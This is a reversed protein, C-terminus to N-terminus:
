MKMQLILKKKLWKTDGYIIIGICINVYKQSSQSIKNHYMVMAMKWVDEHSNWVDEHRNRVYRSWTIM